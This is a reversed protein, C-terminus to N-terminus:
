GVRHVILSSGVLLSTAAAAAPESGWWLEINGSATVILLGSVTFMMDAGGTDVSITTGRGATSSARSAFCGVVGGTTLVQDQDPAATSATASADAWTQINVHKTHGADYNISLSVGTTAAACSYLLTYEYVYTGAVLPMSLGTVESPTASSTDFQTALALMKIKGVGFTTTSENLDWGRRDEYTVSQGPALTVRHIKISTSGDNLRFIVDTTLSADANYAQIAKIGRSTTTSVGAVITSTSATTIQTNVAGPTALQSSDALDVYSVHFDVDANTTTEASILASGHKLILM